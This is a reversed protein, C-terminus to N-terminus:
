RLTSAMGTENWAPWNVALATLGRQRRTAAFADLFANAATYDGQGPEGFLSNVSSFMVFFDLEEQALLQDLLWTGKVKSALVAELTGREKQILFGEGAVGASHIVGRIRGEERLEALLAHMQDADSVDVAHCSLRAGLGEIELLARIKANLADDAGADLIAEWDTRPPMPTRNLLALRVPAQSALHKAMALGLGGTGGTILYVGDERVEYSESPLSEAPVAQLAQVYRVGSRYAVQYQADVIELEQLIEEMGTERDADISRLRLNPQELTVVKGLATMSSPYPNFLPEEAMVAQAHMTLLVVDINATLGSSAISKALHFLSYVGRNQQQEIEDMSRVQREDTISALHLMQAVGNAKLEAILRDYAEQEPAVVYRGPAPNDYAAGQVVEVVDRGQDRLTQALTEGLGQEDQFIVISGAGLERRTEPRDQRTWGMRYYQSDAVNSLEGAAVSNGRVKKLVFQNVEVCVDGHEDLISIDFTMTQQKEELGDIVRVYSYCKGPTPRHVRTNKYTLPLLLGEFLAGALTTCMDMLAPHLDYAELDEQLEEPFVLELLLENDSRYAGAIDTLKWRPGFSIDSSSAGLERDVVQEAFVAKMMGVPYNLPQEEESVAGLKRIKGQAHKVSEAGDQSAIVFELWEGKKHLTTHVDRSEGDPVILPTHFLLDEIEVPENGFHKKCAQRAVEVWTTGPVTPKGFIRHDSLVWHRDVRFETRYVDLDLTEVVLEDLLPHAIESVTRAVTKPKHEVWRRTREFAYTPLPVRRYNQGQYLAAWDVEAGQVYLSAIERLLSAQESESDTMTGVFRRVAEQAANRLNRKDAETLCSADTKHAESSVVKHRAYWCEAREKEMGFARVQAIQAKLDELDRVMLALRHEYHGRGVNATYCVDEVSADLRGAQLLRDYQEIMAELSGQTKASLTFLHADKGEQATGAERAVTPAEELIVHSNTGSLGFSSVGCRRVPGNAEWAVRKTNVFVPSDEFSIKQNPQEFHLTAPLEKHKLALVAKLLGAIGSSNDLHGINTKVTGIACFQKKDTHKRFAKTIADIEIPDGLKTGTGHAEIYSITEPDVGADKWARLIVDEQAKGNPATIGISRGDQNIASGKIVAYIHDGDQLAKKLPKLFVAGVGEGWGTGDSREDFSKTRGDTADIGISGLRKAPLLNITVGGAIASECEGNQLSQCALHVAVLSSSCATDVLLSPGRLDLLYSLRSAIISTINGAMSNVASEPDTQSIYQGYLPWNIFGVYVGTRSEKLAGGGYGADEIAAHATELFLRQNPDMLSAEKPSLRFFNSDFKDIEDLYGYPPHEGDMETLGFHTLFAESDAEREPPLSGIADVGNRLNQWFQDATDAKPMKAAVGIIAIDDRKHKASKDAKLAALIESAVRKDIKGAVTQEFVLQALKDM